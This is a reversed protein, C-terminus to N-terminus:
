KITQRNGNLLMAEIGSAESKRISVHYNLITVEIPDGIHAIRVITGETGTIFGMDALRKGIEGTLVVREVKFRDGPKLNSLLM